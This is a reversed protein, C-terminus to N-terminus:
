TTSFYKLVQEHKGKTEITGSNSKEMSIILCSSDRERERGKPIIFHTPYGYM